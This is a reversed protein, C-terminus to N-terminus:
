STSSGFWSAFGGWGSSDSSAMWAYTFTLSFHNVGIRAYKYKQEGTVKDEVLVRTDQTMQEAFVKVRPDQRPLVLLKKRVAERSAAELAKTRNM